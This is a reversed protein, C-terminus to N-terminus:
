KVLKMYNLVLILTTISSLIISINPADLRFLKNRVPSVYVIDNPQLYFGKSYILNADTLDVRYTQTGSITKRLVLINKRNGYDTLDGAFGLAEFLNIGNSYYEFEGPKKVEGLVTYKINVLKVIVVADKLYEDLKTQIISQAELITKNTVNINGLIPLTVDGSDKVSFGNLYMLITANANNATNITSSFDFLSNIEKNISLVKIYLIDNPQIRYNLNFKAYSTDQFKDGIQHLYVINKQRTCSIFILFFIFVLNFFLKLLIRKQKIFM